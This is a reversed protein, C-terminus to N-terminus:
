VDDEFNFILKAQPLYFSLISGPEISAVSEVEVWGGLKEIIERAVALGLDTGRIDAQNLREFRPFLETEQEEILSPGNDKVWFQVMENERLTSGLEIRPSQENRKIAQSIYSIWVEEIWPTYGFADCWTNPEVLEVNHTTLLRSLHQKAKVVISTMDLPHIAPTDVRVSVLFMLEDLMRDLRRSNRSIVNLDNQIDEITMQSGFKQLYDGYSIVAGLPNRLNHTIMQTFGVIEDLNAQHEGEYGKLAVAQQDLNRRTRALQLYPLLQALVEEAVVPKVWYGAIHYQFAALKHENTTAIIFTPVAALHKNQSLTQCIVLDNPATALDLLIADPIDEQALAIANEYSAISVSVGIAEQLEGFWNGNCDLEPNHTIYLLRTEAFVQSRTM